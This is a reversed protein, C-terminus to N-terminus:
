PQSLIASGDSCKKSNCGIYDKHCSPCQNEDMLEVLICNQHFTHRCHEFPSWVAVENNKFPRTCKECLTHPPCLWLDESPNVLSRPSIEEFTKDSAKPVEVRFPASKSKKKKTRLRKKYLKSVRDSATSEREQKTQAQESLIQNKDLSTQIPGRGESVLEGRSEFGVDNAPCVIRDDLPPIDSQQTLPTKSTAKEYGKEERFLRTENTETVQLSHNDTEGNNRTPLDALSERRSDLSPDNLAEIDALNVNKEEVKGGVNEVVNAQLSSISVDRSLPESFVLCSLVNTEGAITSALRWHIRGSFDRPVDDAMGGIPRSWALDVAINEEHDSADDNADKHYEIIGLCRRRILQQIADEKTMRIFYDQNKDSDEEAYIILQGLPKPEKALCYYLGLFPAAVLGITGVAVLGVVMIIPLAILYMFMYLLDVFREGSASKGDKLTRRSKGMSTLTSVSDNDNNNQRRRFSSSHSDTQPADVPLAEDFSRPNNYVSNVSKEVQSTANENCSGTEVNTDEVNM